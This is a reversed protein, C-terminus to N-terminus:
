EALAILEDPVEFFSPYGRFPIPHAFRRPNRLIYCWGDDRVWVNDYANDRKRVAEPTGADVIEITGLLMAGPQPTFSPMEVHVVACARAIWLPSKADYSKARQIVITQPFNSKFAYSRSRNEITKTGDIVLDAYPQSLSLALM